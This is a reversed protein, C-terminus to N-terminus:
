SAYVIRSLFNSKRILVSVMLGGLLAVVIEFLGKLYNQVDGPFLWEYIDKAWVIFPIEICFIILSNKGLILFFKGAFTGQLYKAGWLVIIPALIALIFYIAVSTGYMRVSINLDGGVHRLGLYMLVLFLVFWFNMMIIRRQRAEMGAYMILAILPATDISWPLLIPINMFAVTLLAYFTILM